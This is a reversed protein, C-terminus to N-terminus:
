TQINQPKFFYIALYFPFFIVKLAFSVKLPQTQVSRVNRHCEM